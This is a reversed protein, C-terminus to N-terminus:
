TQPVLYQVVDSITQINLSDQLHTGIDLFLRAKYFDCHSYTWISCWSRIFGRLRFYEKRLEGFFTRNRDGEVRIQVIKFDRGRNAM